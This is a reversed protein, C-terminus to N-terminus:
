KSVPKYAQHHKTLINPLSGCGRYVIVGFMLPKQFALVRGTFRAQSKLFLCEHVHVYMLLAIFLIGLCQAIGCCLHGDKANCIPPPTKLWSM